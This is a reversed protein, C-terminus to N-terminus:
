SPIDLEQGPYIVSPDDISGQNAEYIARWSVGQESGIKALTDGSEVTYEGSGSSSSSSSSSSASASSSSSSSSSAAEADADGSGSLGLESSCAPWAGWGQGALTREAVAIQESKSALDARPAYEAGGYAEWTSKTFQLGGYFGNGTNASWDGSAECQALQEWTDTSAANAPAAAGVLGATMAAGTMGVAFMKQQRSTRRRRGRYSARLM